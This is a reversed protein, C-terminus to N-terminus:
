QEPVRLEAGLWQLYGGAGAVIPTAVIEPVDYPHVHMIAEEARPYLDMRSKIICLYEAAQDIKGQWWFYSKLPGIIQVCAALRQRLLERAISEADEQQAVTTMIQIYEHMAVGRAPSAGAAAKRGSEETPPLSFLL